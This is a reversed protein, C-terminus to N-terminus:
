LSLNVSRGKEKESKWMFFANEVTVINQERLGKKKENKLTETNKFNECM